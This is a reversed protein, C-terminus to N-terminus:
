GLGYFKIFADYFSQLSLILLYEGRFLSVWRSSYLQMFTIRCQKWSVTSVSISCITNAEQIVSMSGLERSLGYMRSVISLIQANDLSSCSYYRDRFGILMRSSSFCNRYFFLIFQEVSFQMIGQLNTPTFEANIILLRVPFIRSEQWPWSSNSSPSIQLSINFHFTSLISHMLLHYHINKAITCQHRIYFDSYQPFSLWISGRGWWCM